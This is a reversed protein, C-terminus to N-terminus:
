VDVVVEEEEEEEEAVAHERERLDECDVFCV